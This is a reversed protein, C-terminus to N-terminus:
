VSRPDTEASPIIIPETLPSKSGLIRTSVPIARLLLWVFFLTMLALPHVLSAIGASNIWALYMFVFYTLLVSAFAIRGEQVSTRVMRILVRGVVAAIIAMLWFNYFGFAVIGEVMVDPTHNWEGRNIEDIKGPYMEASVAGSFSYRYMTDNPVMLRLVTNTAVAALTPFYDIGLSENAARRVIKYPPEAELIFARDAVYHLTGVFDGRNFKDFTMGAGVIAICGGLGLFVVTRVRIGSLFLALVGPMITFVAGAKAGLTLGAFFTVAGATFVAKRSVKGPVYRYLLCVYAFFSPAFYKIIVAQGAGATRIEGKELHGQLLAIVDVQNLVLVALLLSVLYVTRRSMMWPEAKVPSLPIKPTGWRALSMLCLAALFALIFLSHLILPLSTYPRDELIFQYRSPDLDILVLGIEPLSLMALPLVSMLNIKPM